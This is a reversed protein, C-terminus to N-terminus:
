PKRNKKREERREKREEKTNFEKPKDWFLIDTTDRYLRMEYDDGIPTTKPSMTKWISVYEAM